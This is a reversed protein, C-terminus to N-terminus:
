KRASPDLGVGIEKPFLGVWGSTILKSREVLSVQTGTITRNEGEQSKGEVYDGVIPCIRECGSVSFCESFSALLYKAYPKDQM